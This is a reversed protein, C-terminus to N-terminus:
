ICRGGNRTCRGKTGDPQDCRDGRGKDRCDDDPGFHFDEHVCRRRQKFYGNECECDDFSDYCKRNHKRYSHAPCQFSNTCRTKCKGPYVKGSVVGGTKRLRCNLECANSFTEPPVIFDTIRVAACVPNYDRNCFCEETPPPPPCGKSENECCWKAKEPSFVERTDCNHKPQGCEGQSIVVGGDCNALCGM